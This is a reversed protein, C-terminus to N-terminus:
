AAGGVAPAVQVLPPPVEELVESSTRLGDMVQEHLEGGLQVSLAGISPLPALEIGASVVMGEGLINDEEAMVKNACEILLEEVAMDIAQNIIRAEEETPKTNSPGPASSNLQGPIASDDTGHGLNDADEMVHDQGKEENGNQDGEDDLDDEDDANNEEGTPMAYDINFFIEYLSDDVVIDASDPIHDVDLVAVQLRVVGAKRTYKQLKKAPKIEQSWEEFAMVGENNDTPIRKIAVMRQLEVQCPFTVLYKNNGHPRVVWDWKVPILRVLEAKVLDASVEGEVITIMATATVKKPIPAAKDYPIQFFVEGKGGFGWSIASPKPGLLLGCKSTHHERGHAGHSRGGGRGQYPPSPSRRGRGRGAKFRNGRFGQAFHWRKEGGGDGGTGGSAAGKVGGGAMMAELYSPRQSQNDLTGISQHPPVPPMLEKGQHAHGKRVPGAYPGRPGALRPDKSIQFPASKPDPQSRSRRAAPLSAGAQQQELALAIVAGVSKKPSVRPKPLPGRWPKWQLKSVGSPHQQDNKRRRIRRKVKQWGTEISHVEPLSSQRAPAPVPDAFGLDEVESDSGSEESWFKGGPTAPVEADGSM